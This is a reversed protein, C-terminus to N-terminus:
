GCTLDVQCRQGDPCDMDDSCSTLGDIAVDLVGVSQVALEVCGVATDVAEGSRRTLVVTPFGSFGQDLLADVLAAPVDFAGTDDVTCVVRGPTGGHNAINLDLHVKQPGPAGPPAWRIAAPQGREVTVPDVGVELPAVGRGRLVFAATADGSARLTVADGEAFAPHPLADGRHTYFWVPPGATMSVPGTLGEVTVTGVGVNIPSPVCEGESGCVEAGGCPPDCFLTPPRLLACPGETAAEIPVTAPTVADAVQGQVATFAPRLEVIFQGTRTAEPCAAYTDLPPAADPPAADPATADPAADVAADPTEGDLPTADASSGDLAAADVPAAAGDDGDDCAALWLGAACLLVIRM